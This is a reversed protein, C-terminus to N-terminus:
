NERTLEGNFAKQLVSKKLEELDILKQQYIAELKKTESSLSNIKTAIESQSKKNPYYIPYAELDDRSIGTQGVARESLKIIYKQIGRHQLYFFMFERDMIKENPIAKMLAVNYAGNLGRLIQFVPPGYRGIMIENEDCYRKALNIPIYVLHRDTKYDRIQILRILGERHSYEFYKKSPQSGGEFSCIEGLTKEEWGEHKNGFISQLYSEFLERANKLNQEANAKATTIAEFAEDLISVIRQQETFPPCPISFDLIRKPATHRVMTGTASDKISKLYKETQLLFYLYNKNISEDFFIFRGIRQNHLINEYEIIAPKGLIKMKSSLDTMVVVLDGVEFYFEKPSIGNYRKTNKENFILTGYESFNGPTLVIPKDGSFDLDFETGEFAYGHKIECVEGLKKLIWGRPLSFNDGQKM